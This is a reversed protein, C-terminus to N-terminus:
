ASFFISLPCEERHLLRDHAPYYVMQGCRFDEIKYNAMEKARGNEQVFREAYVLPM